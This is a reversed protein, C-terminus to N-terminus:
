RYNQEYNNARVCNKIISILENISLNCDLSLWKTIIAFVGKFYFKFVYVQNEKAVDFKNLIPIFLEKYMKEFIMESNFLTPKKNILIFVNKNNKLFQLYPTLYEPTILVLEELSSRNIIEKNLQAGNFSNFFQKKIYEITEQLLDDITEYHLYFTSRNVGAKSCIEKVTIYEYDKNELLLLLAENMLRATNFYKSEYKNM